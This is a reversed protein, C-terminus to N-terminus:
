QRYSLPVSCSHLLSTCLTQRSILSPLSGSIVHLIHWLQTQLNAGQLLVVFFVIATPSSIIFDVFTISSQVDWTICLYSQQGSFFFFFAMPFHLCSGGFVGSSWIISSGVHSVRSGRPLFVQLRMRMPLGRFFYDEWQIKRHVIARHKDTVQHM